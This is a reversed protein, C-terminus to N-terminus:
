WWPDAQQVDAARGEEKSCAAVQEDTDEQMGVGGEATM